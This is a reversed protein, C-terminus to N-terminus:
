AVASEGGKDSSNYAAAIATLNHIKPSLNNSTTYMSESIFEITEQKALNGIVIFIGM